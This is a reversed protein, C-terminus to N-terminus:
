EWLVGKTYRHGLYVAGLALPIKSSFVYSAFVSLVATSLIHVAATSLLAKLSKEATTEPTHLRTPLNQLPRTVPTPQVHAPPIQNSSQLPLSQVVRVPNLIPNDHLTDIRRKSDSWWPWNSGFNSPLASIQNYQLMLERLRNWNSGFNDPLASLQNKSIFLSELQYWNSGFNDPLANLQNVSLALMKLLYWNEGFNNPLTKLQNRRLNLETLNPLALTAFEEPIMTLNLDSLDLEEIRALENTHTRLWQKIEAASKQTAPRILAVAIRPWILTLNRDNEAQRAADELVQFSQPLFGGKLKKRAEDGLSANGQSACYASIGEYIKGLDAVTKPRHTDAILPPHFLIREIYPFSTLHFQRWEREILANTARLFDRCTRTLKVDNVFSLIRQLIEPPTRLLAPLKSPQRASTGQPIQKPAPSYSSSVLPLALQTM